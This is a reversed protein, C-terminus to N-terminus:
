QNRQNIYNIIGEYILDVAKNEYDTSQIKKFDEQNNIYGMELLTAPMTSTKIVAFQEKKVGNNDINLNKLSDSIAQALSKSHNKNYYYQTIGTMENANPSSDFHISIFIDAHKANAVSGVKLFDTYQSDKTRTYYVHAGNQSLKKGLKLIYKLTYTKEFDKPNTSDLNALAGSDAGGHGADLFIRTQILSSDAPYKNAYGNLLWSAVWGTKSTKPDSGVQIKYWGNKREIIQLDAGKVLLGLEKSFPSASTRLPINNFRVTQSNTKHLSFMLAFASVVFIATIIIQPINKNINKM